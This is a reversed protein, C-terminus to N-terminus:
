RRARDRTWDITRLPIIPKMAEFDADCHILAVGHKIAVTAIFCDAATPSVGNKRLQAAHEWADEWWRAEFALRLIPVFWLLLSEKGEKSRLGTMLELLIWETLAVQGGAILPKLLSRIAPSGGPRLGEIWVSTDVLYTPHGNPM